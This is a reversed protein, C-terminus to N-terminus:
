RLYFLCYKNKTRHSTNTEPTLAIKLWVTTAAFAVVTSQGLPTAGFDFLMLMSNSKLYSTGKLTLLFM